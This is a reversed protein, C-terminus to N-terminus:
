DYNKPCMHLIIIDGAKKKPKKFNQNKPSNSPYFPLLYGLIFFYGSCEDCVM